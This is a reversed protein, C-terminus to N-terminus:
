AIARLRLSSFHKAVLFVYLVFFLTAAAGIEANRTKARERKRSKSFQIAVARCPSLAFILSIFALQTIGARLPEIRTEKAGQRRQTLKNLDTKAL